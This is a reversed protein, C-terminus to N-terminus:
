GANGGLSPIRELTEGSPPAIVGNEINCYNSPQLDVVRAFARLGLNRALRLGRLFSGFQKNM